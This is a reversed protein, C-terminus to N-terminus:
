MKLSNKARNLETEDINNKLSNLEDTLVSMLEASHSGPGEVTLGFLGSDSFPTNITNVGDVFNNRQVCSQARNIGSSSNGLLSHM